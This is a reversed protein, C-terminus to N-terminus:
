PKAIEFFASIARFHRQSQLCFVDEAYTDPLEDIGIRVVGDSRSSAADFMFGIGLGQAAAEYIAERAALVMLPEIRLGLLDLRRDITKQTHSQKTRFLLPEHRLENLSVSRRASLPHGEPVLAVIRQDLWPERVLGPDDPAETLIGVDAQRERVGQVVEDWNGFGTSLRIGPFNRRFRAILTMAPGPAGALIRLEGVQLTASAALVETASLEADRIAATREFLRQGIPTLLAGSRTRDFLRTAYRVELARIQATVAPQSVALVQAAKSFSGQAAVEAFTRLQVLSPGSLTLRWEVFIVWM